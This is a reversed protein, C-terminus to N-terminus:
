DRRGMRIQALADIAEGGVSGHRTLARDSRGVRELVSIAAPDGIQGLAYAAWYRVEAVEDSLLSILVSTSSKAKIVGLAEAAHARVDADDAVDAAVSCLAKASTAGGLWGLTWAAAKRRELDHSRLLRVLRLQAGTVHLAALARAAEWVLGEDTATELTEVLSPGAAKDRARAAMQCAVLRLDDERSYRCLGMDPWDRPLHV